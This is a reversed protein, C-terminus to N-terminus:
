RRRLRWENGERVLEFDHRAPRDGSYVDAEVRQDQFEIDLTCRGTEEVNISYSGRDDTEGHYPDGVCTIRITVDTLPHDDRTMTGYIVGAHAATAVLLALFLTSAIRM